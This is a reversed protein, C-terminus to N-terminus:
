RCPASAALRVREFAQFAAPLRAALMEAAAVSPGSLAPDFRRPETLVFRRFRETEAAATALEPPLIAPRGPLDAGVRVILDRSWTSGIPATEDLLDLIGLLGDELATHALQMAHMFAMATTSGTAMDADKHLQVATDFLDASTDLTQRIQDVDLM